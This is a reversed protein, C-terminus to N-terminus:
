RWYVMKVWRGRVDGHGLDMSTRALAERLAIGDALYANVRERAWSYRLAHRQVGLRHMASRYWMTAQKLAAGQALRGETRLVSLAERVAHLALVPDALHTL